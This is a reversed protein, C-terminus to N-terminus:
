AESRHQQDQPQRQAGPLHDDGVEIPRTQPSAIAAASPRNSTPVSFGIETANKTSNTPSPM